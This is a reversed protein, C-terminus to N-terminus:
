RLSVIIFRLFMKEHVIAITRPKIIMLIIKQIKLTTNESKQINSNAAPTYKTAESICLAM